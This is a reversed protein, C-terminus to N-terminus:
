APAPPAIGMAGFGGSVKRVERMINKQSTPNPGSANYVGRMSDHNIAREFIRNLDLEHIWSFGQTGSGVQGGLGRRALKKLRALAGGGAGRDRGVVFGTRLM